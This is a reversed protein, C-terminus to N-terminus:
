IDGTAQMNRMKDEAASSNGSGWSYHNGKQQFGANGFGGDELGPSRLKCGWSEDPLM